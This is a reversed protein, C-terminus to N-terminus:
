LLNGFTIRSLTEVTGHHDLSLSLKRVVVERVRVAVMGHHRLLWTLLIAVSILKGFTGFGSIIILM